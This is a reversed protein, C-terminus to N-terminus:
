KNNIKGSQIKIDGNKDLYTVTTVVDKIEGDYAGANMLIAGGLTGPIGSAFELGTLGAKGAEKAVRILEKANELSGAHNASMEAIILVGHKM